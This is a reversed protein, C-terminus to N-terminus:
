FANSNPLVRKSIYEIFVHKSIYATDREYKILILNRMKVRTIVLKNSKYM